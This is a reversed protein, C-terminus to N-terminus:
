DTHLKSSLKTYVIFSEGSNSRGVPRHRPIQSKLVPKHYLGVGVIFGRCRILVFGDEADSEVEINAGGILAVAQREDVDIVNRTAYRGLVQMAWTTPKVSHPFVRVLRMGRRMPRVGLHSHRVGFASSGSGPLRRTKTDKHYTQETGQRNDSGFQMVEPTAVFVAGHGLEFGLRELVEAPIGFREAIDRTPKRGAASPERSRAALHRVDRTRESCRREDTNMQPELEPESGQYRQIETTSDATRMEPRQTKTEKHHFGLGHEDTNIRPKKGKRILAVFFAESDNDQPLIRRCDLVSGPFGDGKWVSLGPRMKFGHLEVPLVEAEPCKGLLYAVVAENEEPAITCTSYTMVGGPRLARYGAMILGKQLRGFRECADASWRTLAQASKRMTGECTCPADVLVRDCSGELRRSLAVGDMRCVAVNLCGARDINGILGRVRDSSSDNAVLLGTNQMMASMQTTKSGPAAALDLVTEGPQPGLILAPVMSSADQLYYLGIFHDLRKGIGEIDRVEFALNWWPMQVPHVDALWELAQERTAKLTNVRLTRRPPRFMAETFAEFDPIFQSYREIFEPPLIRKAVDPM